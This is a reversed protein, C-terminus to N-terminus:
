GRPQQPKKARTAARRPAPRPEPKPDIAACLGAGVLRDADAQPVDLESGVGLVRGDRFLPAVTRVRPM